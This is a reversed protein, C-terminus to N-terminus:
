CGTGRDNACRMPCRGSCHRLKTGRRGCGFTAKKKPIAKPHIPEVVANPATTLFGYVLHPGAPKSKTGRDGKFETGIGAFAFLPRDDNLAFWVVDKKTEPNAEPAYEAFSNVPVLCRNETKLWHPSTTNRINTVPFGGARPPPPMLADPDNV